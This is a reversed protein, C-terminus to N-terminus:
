VPSMSFLFWNLHYCLFLFESDAICGLIVQQLKSMKISITMM